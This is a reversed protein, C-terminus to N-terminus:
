KNIDKILLKWGNILKERQNKKMKPTYHNDMKKYKFPEKTNKWFHNKVGALIGAGLATSEINSPKIVKISSIDAQFQLLFSNKAAGGDVNLVKIPKNTDKKICDLLDNVQYAISELSARIIHKKNIGRTLGTIIGRVNSNWYM